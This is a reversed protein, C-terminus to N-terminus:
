YGLRDGPDPADVAPQWREFGLDLDAAAVAPEFAGVEVQGVAAQPERDLVVALREVGGFFLPFSIATSTVPDGALLVVAEGDERIPVEEPDIAADGRGDYASLQLFV